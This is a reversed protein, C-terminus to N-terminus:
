WKIFNARKQLTLASISSCYIKTRHVTRNEVTGVIVFSRLNNNTIGDIFGEEECTRLFERNIKSGLTSKANLIAVIDKKYVVTNEGLHLFM